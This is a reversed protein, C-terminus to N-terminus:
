CNLEQKVPLVITHKHFQSTGESMKQCIAIQQYVRYGLSM